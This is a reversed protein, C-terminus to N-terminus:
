KKGSPQKSADKPKIIIQVQRNDKELGGKATIMQQGRYYKILDGTFTELLRIVKAYHRFDIVDKEVDYTITDGWAKLTEKGGAREEIYFAQTSETGEAILKSIKKNSSYVTMKGATLQMAGQIVKVNGVYVSIGTKNDLQASDATLHIPEKIGGSVAHASVPLSLSSFLVVARSLHLIKIGYNNHSNNCSNNHSNHHSSRHSGRHLNSHLGSAKMSGRFVRILRATSSAFYNLFRFYNFHITSALIRSQHRCRFVDDSNSLKNNAQLLTFFDITMIEIEKFIRCIAPRSPFVTLKIM